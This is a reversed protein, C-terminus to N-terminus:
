EPYLVQDLIYDHSDVPLDAVMQEKFALGIARFTPERAKLSSLYRDYFGGGHGLRLGDRTFCVGPVVVLDPCFLPQGELFFSRIVEECKESRPQLILPASPSSFVQAPELEDRSNVPVMLMTKRLLDNHAQLADDPSYTIPAIWPVALRKGSGSSLIFDVISGTDIELPFSLFVAVNQAREFLPSQLLKSAVERSQRRREEPSIQKLLQNIENRLTKKNM